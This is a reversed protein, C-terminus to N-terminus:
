CVGTTCLLQLIAKRRDSIKGIVENQVKYMHTEKRELQPNSLVAESERKGRRLNIQNSKSM